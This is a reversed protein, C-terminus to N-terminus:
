SLHARRSNKLRRELLFLGILLLAFFVSLWRGALVDSTSRWDATVVAPGQAVPLAILGDGGVSLRMARLLNLLRLCGCIIWDNACM